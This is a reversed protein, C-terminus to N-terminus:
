LLLLRCHLLFSQLIPRGKMMSYRIYLGKRKSSLAKRKQPQGARQAPRAIRPSAAREARRLFHQANKSPRAQPWGRSDRLRRRSQRRSFASFWIASTKYSFTGLLPLPRAIHLPAAFGYRLGWFM